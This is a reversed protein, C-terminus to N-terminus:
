IVNNIRNIIKLLKRKRIENTLYDAIDNNLNSQGYMLNLKGDLRLTNTVIDNIFHKGEGVTKNLLKKNVYTKFDDSNIFENINNYGLERLINYM